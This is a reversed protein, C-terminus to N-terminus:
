EDGSGIGLAKRITRYAADRRNRVTKESAVGLAKRITMVEENSSDIPMEQLIMEIVRRQKDPLSRIAAAVRTRYIPDDSLLEQKIDLSGMAREVAISPENSDGEAEIPAARASQSRARNVATSRLAAVAGSFMIEFYDLGEGPEVRDESLKVNFLDRVRDRADAAHVNEIIGTREGEARPLVADIRRMLERYLKGYYTQDNDSRAARILHVICESVVYLKSRADRVKLAALVDSRSMDLVVALAAEVDPRRTYPTGNPYRKSLARVRQM